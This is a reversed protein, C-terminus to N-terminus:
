LLKKKRTEIGEDTKQKLEEIQKLNENELQSEKM